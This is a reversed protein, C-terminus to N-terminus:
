KLLLYQNSVYKLAVRGHKFDHREENELKIVLGERVKQGEYCSPEEALTELLARDLPGRYVIKVTEDLGINYKPDDFMLGNVVWKGHDLIDFAAFGVEGQKKGYTFKTGQVNYVEGYLVMGPHTRCWPEIWPNQELAKWFSSEPAFIDKTVPIGTEETVSLGTTNDLYEITKIFTGPKMKWTRHSGVHLKEGDFVYRCNSGNLKETLIVNEGENFLEHLKKFNELDYVPAPLDPGSASMGGKFGTPGTGGHIEPDYHLVELQEMVNDDEQSGEPAPVLLGYSLEGRFRRVTIRIHTKGKGDDLFAFEPRALPVLSDVDVWAALSGVPFQGIKGVYQYDYSGIKYIELSDANPHKSVETIKIVKVEHTSSM